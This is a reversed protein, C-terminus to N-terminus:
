IRDKNIMELFNRKTTNNAPQEYEDIIWGFIM